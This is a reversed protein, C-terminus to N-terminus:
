RIGAGYILEISGSIYEALLILVSRNDHILIQSHSIYAEKLSKTDVPPEFHRLERIAFVTRIFIYDQNEKLFGFELKLVGPSFCVEHLETAIIPTDRVEKFQNEIYNSESDLCALLEAIMPQM